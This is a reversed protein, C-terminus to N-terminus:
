THSFSESKSWKAGRWLFAHTLHGFTDVSGALKEYYRLAVPEKRGEREATLEVNALQVYQQSVSLELTANRTFGVVNKGRAM